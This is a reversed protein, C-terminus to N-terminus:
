PTPLTLKPWPPFDNTIPGPSNTQIALCFDEGAAIAVVNTISNPYGGGWVSVTGDRRLAMFQSGGAAIAVVNSLGPHLSWGPASWRTTANQLDVVLGERTLALGHSGSGGAAVAVVNSLGPPSRLSGAGGNWQLVTGDRKLALSDGYNVLACSVAVINTLASSVDAGAGFVSGDKRLALSHAYGASIAIVNSVSTAISLEQFRDGGWAVIMGNRLLALSHSSGASISVVNSLVHGGISVLGNTWTSSPTGIARGNENWGWGVVTGDSQLALSHSRGAAIAVCDTLLVGNLM